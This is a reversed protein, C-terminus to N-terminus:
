KWEINDIKWSTNDKVLTVLVNQYFVRPQASGEKFEQRQTAIDVKALTNDSKIINSTIVKTTMGSYKPTSKISPKPQVNNWMSETMAFQLDKINEYSNHNSYSGFREVFDSAVKVLNTQLIEEPSVKKVEKKVVAEPKSTPIPKIIKKIPQDVTTNNSIELTSPESFFTWFAWLGVGILIVVVLILIKKTFSSM